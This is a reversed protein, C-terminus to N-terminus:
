VEQGSRGKSRPEQQWLCAFTRHEPPEPQTVLLDWHSVRPQPPQRKIRTAKTNIVETGKAGTLTNGVCRGKRDVKCLKQKKLYLCTDAHVLM